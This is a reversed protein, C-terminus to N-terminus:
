NRSPSICQGIVDRHCYVNLACACHPFTVQKAKQIAKRILAEVEGDLLQEAIVTAATALAPHVGERIVAVARQFPRGRQKPATTEAAMTTTTEIRINCL